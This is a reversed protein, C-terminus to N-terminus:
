ARLWDAVPKFVREFALDSIFLDAHAVPHEADGILLGQAPGGAIDVAALANGAPCIRDASGALVLLPRDFRALADTIDVGALRLDKSRIWAALQRNVRPHPDEVTRVLERAPGTHTLRPNLYVGLAWPVLKAAVPLALRAARRSGRLQFNGLLPAIAAFGSVVLSSTTWRLPTGMSVLKDIRHDPVVGGYGYLLAGGLSCGIAHLRAHGTHRAIWDFAAPLDVFAYDALGIHAHVGPKPRASTQGRLDVSWPDFGADLMSEMFSGGRPHFRFIFSNMGFGPVFVVPKGPAQGPRVGRHLELSWGDTTRVTHREVHM